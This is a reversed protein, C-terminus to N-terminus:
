GRLRKVEEAGRRWNRRRKRGAGGGGDELEVGGRWSVEGRREGQSSRSKKALVGEEGAL